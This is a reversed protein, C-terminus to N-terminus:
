KRAAESAPQKTRYPDPHRGKDLFRWYGFRQRFLMESYVAAIASAILTYIFFSAFYSPDRPAIEQFVSMIALGSALILLILTLVNRIMRPLLVGTFLNWFMLIPVFEHELEPLTM